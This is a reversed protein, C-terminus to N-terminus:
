VFVLRRYVRTQFNPASKRESVKFILNNTTSKSVLTSWLKLCVDASIGLYERSAESRRRDELKRPSVPAFQLLMCRLRRRASFFLPRASHASSFRRALKFTLNPIRAQRKTQDQFYSPCSLFSDITDGYAIDESMTNNPLSTFSKNWQRADSRETTPAVVAERKALSSM